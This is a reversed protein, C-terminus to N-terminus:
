TCTRMRTGAVQTYILTYMSTTHSRTRIRVVHVVGPAARMPRFSRHRGRCSPCVVCHMLTAQLCQCQEYGHNQRDYSALPLFPRPLLLLPPPSESMHQSRTSAQEQSYCSGTQIHGWCMDAIGTCVDYCSRPSVCIM